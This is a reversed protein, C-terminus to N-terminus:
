SGKDKCSIGKPKFGCVAKYKPIINSIKCHFKANAIAAPRTPGWGEYTSDSFGFDWTVECYWRKNSDSSRTLATFEPDEPPMKYGDPFPNNLEIDNRSL